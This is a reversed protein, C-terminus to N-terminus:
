PNQFMDPTINRAGHLIRVVTVEEDTSVFFVVYHEIVISRMGPALDDRPRGMRPQSALLRCRSDLEAVLREAAPPSRGNLYELIEDLDREATDTRTVRRV